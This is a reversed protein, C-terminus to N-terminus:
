NKLNQLYKEQLSVGKKDICSPLSNVSALLDEKKVLLESTINNFIEKILDDQYYKTIFQDYFSYKDLQNSAIKMVNLVLSFIVDDNKKCTYNLLSEFIPNNELYLSSLEERLIKRKLVEIVNSDILTFNDDIDLHTHYKKVLSNTFSDFTSIDANDINYADLLNAKLLKKRIREKMEQAALRTFTLILFEEIKYNKEKIFHLVRESLVLTKGSGAGASVIINGVEQIAKTQEKTFM